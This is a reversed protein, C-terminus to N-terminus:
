NLTFAVFWIGGCNSRSQPSCNTNGTKAYAVTGSSSSSDTTIGFYIKSGDLDTLMITGPLNSVVSATGTTSTFGNSASTNCTKTYTSGNASFVYKMNGDVCNSDGGIVFTKSIFTTTSTSSKVFRTSGTATLGNPLSPDVNTVNVTFIANSVDNGSYNIHSVTTTLNQGNITQHSAIQGSPLISWTGDQTVGTEAPACNNSIPGSYNVPDIVPTNTCLKYTTGDSNNFGVGAELFSVNLDKVLVIGTTFGTSASAQSTSIKPSSDTNINLLAKSSSVLAADPTVTITNPQTIAGGSSIYNNLQTAQTSTLSVSSVDLSNGSTSLSQLVQAIALGNPISLVSVVKSGTTPASPTISGVNVLSGNQAKISFTVTDGDKFSFAGTGDTTGSLTSPSATYTLGKVETDFYVGSYTTSGGGGGGGGGCAALLAGASIMTALKLKGIM